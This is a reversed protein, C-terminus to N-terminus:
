INDKYKWIFGGSSKYKGKCCTVICNGGIKLEKSAMIISDWEKIFEGLITFQLISRVSKNKYIEPPPDEYYRWIFGKSSKLRGVCCDQINSKRFGYSAAEKISDFTRIFNGSIDYQSVKRKQYNLRDLDIDIFENKYRWIFGSATVAEGRCCGSINSNKYFDKAIKLSNWEKILNGVLDYQLVVKKPNSICQKKWIRKDKNIGYDKLNTFVKKESCKLEESIKPISLNDVIYLQYLLDKDIPQKLNGGSRNYNPFLKHRLKMKEITNYDHQTTGNGGDSHNTLNHGEERYKKIYFTEWMQWDIIPVQDLIKLIPKKNEKLLSKIWNNKHTISDNCSYIHDLIRKKPSNSKGIYRLENTDPDCLGYIFTKM